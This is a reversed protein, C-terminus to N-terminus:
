LMPWGDYTQRPGNDSDKVKTNATVGYVSLLYNVRMSSLLERAFTLWLFKSSFTLYITLSTIVLLAIKLLFRFSMKRNYLAASLKTM